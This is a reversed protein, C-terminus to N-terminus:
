KKNKLIEELEEGLEDLDEDLDYMKLNSSQANSMIRQTIYNIAQTYDSDPRFLYLPLRKVVSLAVDENYLILGIYEIKLGLNQYIIKRLKSGVETDTKKKAMNIVMRSYFSKLINKAIKGSEANIASLLEIIKLFSNGTRENGQHIFSKIENRELSRPPFSRMLTRSLVVKLFYYADIIATPEITTVLIGPYSIMFFDIIDISSGAGLDIIIYDSDLKKIENIIKKKVFYNLNATGPFLTNGPIFSLGSIETGVIIDKLSKEKKFIIDGMGPTNNDVGFLTHINSGGLDMDILIVRKQQYALSISLNLSFISKGTGGKGSAIPIITAMYLVIHISNLFELPPFKEKNNISVM